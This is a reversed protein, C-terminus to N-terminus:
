HTSSNLPIALERIPLRGDSAQSGRMRGNRRAVRAGKASTQVLNAPIMLSLRKISTRCLTHRQTVDHENARTATVTHVQGSEADVVVHAKMGFHRSNVRKTQHMEPDREGLMANVEVLLRSALDNRELLHHFNPITTEDPMSARTLPLGAFQRMSQIYYLSEQIAPHNLGFWQQMFHIRRITELPYPPRGGKDESCVPENLAMLRFWPTVQDMEALFKERRTTKRKGLCEVDSLRLQSM